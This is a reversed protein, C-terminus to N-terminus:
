KYSSLAVLNDPYGPIRCTTAAHEFFLVTTPAANMVGAPGGGDQQPLGGRDSPHCLPHDPGAPTIFAAGVV